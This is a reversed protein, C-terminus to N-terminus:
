MEITDIKEYESVLSNGAVHFVIKGKHIAAIENADRVLRAIMAYVRPPLNCPREGTYITIRSPVPRTIPPM